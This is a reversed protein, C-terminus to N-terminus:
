KRKYRRSSPKPGNGALNVVTQASVFPASSLSYTGEEDVWLDKLYHSIFTDKSKWFCAGMIQEMSVCGRAAWSSALGRVDHARVQGQIPKSGPAREGHLQYALTITAKIWSSITATGIEKVSPVTAVFLLQKGHRLHATSKIYQRVARLPCNLADEPLDPGVFEELSPIVVPAVERGSDSAKLNKPLYQLLTSLQL